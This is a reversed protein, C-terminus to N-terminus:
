GATVQIKKPRAQESKPLELKLVGNSITAKIKDRDVETLLTFSRRYIGSLYGRHLLEHGEPESLDQTGTITLLDDELTIELSKEDVGPLDCAVLLADEKEYIDTAPLFVPLDRATEVAQSIQKSSKQVQKDKEEKM